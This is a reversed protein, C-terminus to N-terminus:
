LCREVPEGHCKSRKLVNALAEITNLQAKRLGDNM